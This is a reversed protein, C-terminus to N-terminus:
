PRLLRTLEAVRAPFGRALQGAADGVDNARQPHWLAFEADREARQFRIRLRARLSQVLHFEHDAGVRALFQPGNDSIIRPKEGPFKELAQQLVLEIEQETMSERLDWHVLYRSMGDLVSILFYFTGQVNIYSVDVHWHEHAKLPQVFGTGKKSPANWKRDLRGGAKLVRYVTPPSAAVVDDDLMM